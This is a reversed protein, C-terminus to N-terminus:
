EEETLTLGDWLDFLDPQEKTTIELAKRMSKLMVNFGLAQNRARVASRVLFEVAEERSTPFFYGCNDSLVIIKFDQRLDKILQRIQRKTTVKQDYGAEADWKPHCRLFPLYKMIQACTARPGAVGEKANSFVFRCIELQRPDIEAKHQKIREFIEQQFQTKPRM